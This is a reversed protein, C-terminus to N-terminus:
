GPCRTPARACADLGLWPVSVPRIWVSAAILEPLEPPGSTLAAPSTTPMLVATAALLPWCCADFMPKTIGIALARAM